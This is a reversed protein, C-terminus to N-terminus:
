YLLLKKVETWDLAREGDWNINWSHIDGFAIKRLNNDMVSNLNSVVDDIFVNDKGSMNIIEKGVYSGNKVLFISEKIFPLHENIWQSKLSINDYTGISIIIIHYKKNLEQLIEYTNNNILSLNKFFRNMKFIEEVNEILPCQDSFSWVNVLKWNAPIFDQHYKYIQNYIKCFQFTANIIVNDFDTFLKPKIIILGKM